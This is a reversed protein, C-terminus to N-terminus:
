GWARIRSPADMRLPLRSSTAALSQQQQLHAQRSAFAKCLVQVAPRNKLRSLRELLSDQPHRLVPPVTAHITRFDSINPHM